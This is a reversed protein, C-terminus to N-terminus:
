CRFAAVGALRGDTAQHVPLRRHPAFLTIVIVSMSSVGGVLAVRSCQRSRAAAPAIQSAAAQLADRTVVDMTQMAQQAAVQQADAKVQEIRFWKEPQRWGWTKSRADQQDADPRVPGPVLRLGHGAADRDHLGDHRLRDQRPVRRAIHM